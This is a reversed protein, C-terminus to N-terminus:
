TAQRENIVEYDHMVATDYNDWGYRGSELCLYGFTYTDMTTVLGHRISIVGLRDKVHTRIVDGINFDIHNITTIRNM